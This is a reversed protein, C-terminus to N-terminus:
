PLNLLQGRQGEELNPFNLGIDLVKGIFFLLIFIKAYCVEVIELDVILGLIGKLIKERWVM